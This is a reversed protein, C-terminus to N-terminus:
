TSTNSIQGSNEGDYTHTIEHPQGHSVNSSVLADMTPLESFTNGPLTMNSNMFPNPASLNSVILGNGHDHPFTSSSIVINEQSSSTEM